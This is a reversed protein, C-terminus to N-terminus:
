PPTAAHDQLCPNAGAALLADVAEAHGHYAALILASYGKADQTDLDYGAEIFTALMDTRGNRAAEFFYDALQAKIAAEDPQAAVALSSALLLTCLLAKM